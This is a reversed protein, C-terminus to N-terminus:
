TNILSEEDSEIPTQNDIDQKVFNYWHRLCYLSGFVIMIALAVISLTAIGMLFIIIVNAESTGCEADKRPAWIGGSLCGIVYFVLCALYISLGIGILSAIVILVARPGSPITDWRASLSEKTNQFCSM